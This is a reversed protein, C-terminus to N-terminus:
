PHSRSDRRVFAVPIFGLVIFGDFDTFKLLILHTSACAQTYIFSLSLSLSLSNDWLTYLSRRTNRVLPGASRLSSGKAWLNICCSNIRCASSINLVVIGWAFCQRCRCGAERSMDLILTPSICFFFVVRLLIVLCLLTLCFCVCESVCVMM